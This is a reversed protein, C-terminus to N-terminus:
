LVSWELQVNLGSLGWDSYLVYGGTSVLVNLCLGFTLFKMQLPRHKYGHGMNGMDWPTMPSSAGTVQASSFQDWGELQRLLLAARRGLPMFEHM